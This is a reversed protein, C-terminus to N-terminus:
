PEISEGGHPDFRPREPRSAPHNRMALRFVTLLVLAGVLAGIFGAMEAPGYLGLSQGVITAILAGLVGLVATALLGFPRQGPTMVQAVLAAVFGLVILVVFDM